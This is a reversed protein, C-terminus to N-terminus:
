SIKPPPVATFDLLLSIAAALLLWLTPMGILTGWALSFPNTTTCGGHVCSELISLFSSIYTGSLLSWAAVLSLRPLFFYLLFVVLSLAPCLCTLILLISHSHSAGGWMWAFLGWWSCFVSALGAVTLM